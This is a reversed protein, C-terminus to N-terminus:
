ASRILRIGRASLGFARSHLATSYRAPSRSPANPNATYYTLHNLLVRPVHASEGGVEDLRKGWERFALNGFRQPTDQPKIEKTWDHIDQLLRVIKQVSHSEQDLGSDAPTITAKGICAQSVRALFLLYQHHAKSRLWIAVDEEIFIRKVPASSQSGSAQDIPQLDSLEPLSSLM